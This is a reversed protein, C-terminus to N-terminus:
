DRYGATATADVIRDRTADIEDAVAILLSSYGSLEVANFTISQRETDGNGELMRAMARLKSSQTYLGASEIGIFEEM